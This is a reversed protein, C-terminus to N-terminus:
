GLDHVDRNSRDGEGEGHRGERRGHIDEARDRQRHGCLPTWSDTRELDVEVLYMRREEVKYGDVFSLWIHFGTGGM